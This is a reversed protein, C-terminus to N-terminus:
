SSSHGGGKKPQYGSVSGGFFWDIFGGGPGRTIDEVRGYEILRPASYVRKKQTEM